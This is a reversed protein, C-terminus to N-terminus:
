RGSASFAVATIRGDFVKLSASSARYTRGGCRSALGAISGVTYQSDTVSLKAPAPRSPLLTTKGWSRPANSLLSVNLNSRTGSPLWIASTIRLSM